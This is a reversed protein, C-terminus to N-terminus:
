TATVKSAEMEAASREICLENGEPDAVTVWGRGDPKRHDAVVTAGLDLARQLQEDRTCDVPQLDLHVRNKGQKAEPVPIFLLALGSPSVLLGEPDDASNPNEPDEAFDTLQEWFQVLPHWDTCDVTITRIRATLV